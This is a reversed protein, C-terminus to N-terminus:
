FDGNWACAFGCVVLLRSNHVDYLKHGQSHRSCYCCRASGAAGHFNIANTLGTFDVSSVDIVPQTTTVGDVASASIGTLGVASAAGVATMSVKDIAGKAKVLAGYVKAKTEITM